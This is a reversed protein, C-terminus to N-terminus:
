EVLIDNLVAEADVFEILLAVLNDGAVVFCPLFIDLLHRAPDIIVAGVLGHVGGKHLADHPCELLAIVLTQDVAVVANRGVAGM